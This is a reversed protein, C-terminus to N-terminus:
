QAMKGRRKRCVNVAIAILILSLTIPEPVATGAVVSLASQGFANTWRVWDDAAVGATADNPLATASGFQDRYTTYDAADVVGNRNYDGALPPAFFTGNGFSVYVDVCWLSIARWNTINEGAPLDIFLPPQTGDFVQGLLQDGIAIGERFSANTEERGLYFLVDLGGGDYTFNDVRLTDHDVVTVTGGTNHSRRSLTASWGAQPAAPQAAAVSTFVFAALLTLAHLKAM